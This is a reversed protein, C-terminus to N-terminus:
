RVEEQRLKARFELFKGLHGLIEPDTRVRDAFRDQDRRAQEFAKAIQEKVEKVQGGIERSMRTELGRVEGEAASLDFEGSGEKEPLGSIESEQGAIESEGPLRPMERMNKKVRRHKNM